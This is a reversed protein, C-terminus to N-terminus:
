QKWGSRDAIGSGSRSQISGLAYTFLTMWCAPVHFLWSSDRKHVYGRGAQVMLPVVTVCCLVFLLVREKKAGWPYKRIGLKQYYSYDKIRRRQKKMFNAATRSSLHVIGIKVKAFDVEEKLALEYILDIDFLYDGIDAGALVARRLMTGNAGITPLESPTLHILIHDPYDEVKVPLDTWKKSIYCYRDYNGLFYCLPDGMGMLSSYRVLYEDSKRFTIYLPETGIVKPNSFPAVMRKMWDIDTIINDSDILAVIENKAAKVGVAKGSEATVLSNKVVICKHSEAIKLTADISGGDAIIIEIADKPYDQSAIADLCQGLVAAANLTPIVISVTPSSAPMSGDKEEHNM